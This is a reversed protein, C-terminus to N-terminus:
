VYLLYRSEPWLAETAHSASTVGVRREMIRGGQRHETGEATPQLVVFLTQHSSKTPPQAARCTSSCTDVLCWAANRRWTTRWWVALEATRRQARLRLRTAEEVRKMQLLLQMMAMRMAVVVVMMMM